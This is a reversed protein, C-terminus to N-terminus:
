KTGLFYYIWGTGVHGYEWYSAAYALSSYQGDLVVKGKQNELYKMKLYKM